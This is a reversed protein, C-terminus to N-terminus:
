SKSCMNKKTIYDNKREKKEKQRATVSETLYEQREERGEEKEEM